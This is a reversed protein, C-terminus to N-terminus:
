GENRDLKKLKVKVGRRKRDAEMHLIWGQLCEITQKASNRSM